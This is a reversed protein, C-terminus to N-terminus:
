IGPIPRRSWTDYLPRNNWGGACPAGDDRVLTLGQRTTGQHQCHDAWARRLDVPLQFPLFPKSIVALAGANSLRAISTNDVHGTLFVVPLTECGDLNRMRNWIAEGPEGSNVNDILLLQPRFAPAVALADNGNICQVLNFGAFEVLAMHVVFSIDADPEVHLIKDLPGGPPAKMM